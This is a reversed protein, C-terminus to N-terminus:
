AGLLARERKARRYRVVGLPILALYCLEFALFLGSPLEWGLFRWHFAVLVIPLVWWGQRENRVRRDLEARMGVALDDGSKIELATLNALQRRQFHIQFVYFLCGAFAAIMANTIAARPSSWGALSEMLLFFLPAFLLSAKLPGRRAQRRFNTVRTRMADVDLVPPSLAMTNLMSTAVKRSLSVYATCAACAAVHAEFKAASISSPVAAQQQDFAIQYDDCTM